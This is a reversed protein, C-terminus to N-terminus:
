CTYMFLNIRFLVFVSVSANNIFKAISLAVAVALSLFISFNASHHPYNVPTFHNIYKEM